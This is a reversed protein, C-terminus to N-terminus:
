GGDGRRKARATPEAEMPNEPWHHKPYRGRLDKRVDFYSDRWFGALDRTVQVPRHAPSLLHLTLPVRGGGVAPTEALGFMEQLRVALVPSAPDAYDIPIRSGSPVVVHTPADRDLRARQEWTLRAGLLEALDLRALDDRRRLGALHPALWDDLTALLAEDSVDPWAPDLRRLFLIRQQLARAGKSWPLAAVGARRVAGALAAAVAAPDPDRLPADALVLAGLRERRRARVAGAAEDWEVVDETTIQDGFHEEIEALTVPAALFIRSEPRAGDLEAAVLYPSEGLAQPEAFAAGRGNRLLFRGPPGPRRQAVRDPYALALLAGASADDGPARRDPIRLQQRWQRAQERVRRLADRDVDPAHASGDHASGDHSSESRHASSRHRDPRRAATNQREPPAGWHDRPEAGRGTGRVVELRVRVDAEGTRGRLVDREGLLAALDCALAGLGLEAGRLIMHALRPHLGLAAMRRGHATVRGDAGLAGLEALLERAQAYAAAPPPDLWALEGPDAIGAAALELALPALDAEVIEPRDFPLLAAEEREGWLRYCVGPAVRGARGRRQDASARSVRVTELSTMGTRPSFRPVRSLGADVVVRVGEITLSTQAISTALVVKRRGPPSPAIAADQAEVPLTGHLPLVSVDPGVQGAARAEDLMAEVRRIEGAGPLFVLVDGADRALAALVASAAAREARVEARREVYRTEVPFSRGESTVVPAGGLLAAVPAGDLTASMVLLRLEERLLARTQLTLALGLDAVLSREHYEDFIVLGVGELAPDDQLMRTLVGETVVEVRTRPGVKTDLRVRYGVTEGAREGLSRAMYHAAARAALRRPELMVIRAGALWPEDLLALPVRTTKGAGPPAQLVAATSARLAAKLAPITAEIPLM